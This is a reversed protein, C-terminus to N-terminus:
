FGVPLLPGMRALPRTPPGALGARELVPNRRVKKEKPQWAVVKRGVSDFVLILGNHLLDPMM